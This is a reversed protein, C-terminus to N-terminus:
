LFFLSLSFSSKPLLNLRQQLIYYRLKPFPESSHPIICSYHDHTVFLIIIYSNRKLDYSIYIYICVGADVM